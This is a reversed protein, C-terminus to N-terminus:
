FSFIGNSLVQWQKVTHGRNWTRNWDFAWMEGKSAMSDETAWHKSHGALDRITRPAFKGLEGRDNTEAWTTRATRRLYMVSILQGHIGPSFGYLFM